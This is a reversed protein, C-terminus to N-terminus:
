RRGRACPLQRPDLGLAPHAAAAVIRWAHRWRNVQRGWALAEYGVALGRAAARGALAHLDAAARSNDALTGAQTNSCVLMLPAGLGAMVDFKREARDLNRALRAPEMAEFDRFPQWLFIGLGLDEAMRRIDEPTGDFTLLDNDFIEVGDFGARAVADLKDPFPAASRSLPSPARFGRGM